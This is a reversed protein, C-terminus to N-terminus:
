ISFDPVNSEQARRALEELSVANVEREVAREVQELLEQIVRAGADAPKRRTPGLPGEIARWVEGASIRSAPRSLRHGGEPGRRSELLGARRLESLITELFKAPAGTRRAIEGTSVVKGPALLQALELTARMAYSAKKSVKVIGM